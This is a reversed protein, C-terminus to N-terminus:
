DKEAYDAKHGGRLVGLMEERHEEVLESCLMFMYQLLWFLAPSGKVGAFCWEVKMNRIWNRLTGSLRDRVCAILVSLAPSPTTRNSDRKAHPLRDARM